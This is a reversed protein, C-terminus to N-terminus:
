VNEHLCKISTLLSTVSKIHELLYIASKSDQMAHAHIKCGDLRVRWHSSELTFAKRSKCTKSYIGVIRGSPMQSNRYQTPATRKCIKSIPVSRCQINHSQMVFPVKDEGLALNIVVYQIHLFESFLTGMCSKLLLVLKLCSFMNYMYQCLPQLLLRTLLIIFSSLNPIDTNKLGQLILSDLFHDDTFSSMM